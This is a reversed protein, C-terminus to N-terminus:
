AAADREYVVARVEFLGGIRKTRPRSTARASCRSWSTSRPPSRCGLSSSSRGATPWSSPRACSTRQTPALNSSRSPRSWRRRAREPPHDPGRHHVRRARLQDVARAHLRRQQHGGRRPARRRVPGAGCFEPRQFDHTLITSAGVAFAAVALGSAVLRLAPRAAVLLAAAALALYPWSAALSRVAFVNTGIASQLFTGLPTALALLAVLAVGSRGATGDWEDVGARRSIVAHAGIGVSVALMLLPVLGPPRAADHQAARVPVRRELPRPHAAGGGVSLPYFASLIETTPSDLDGRLSPLWPLYLLVAVGTAALLPRRARPHVAMAWGLQVALVFVATYHTYM